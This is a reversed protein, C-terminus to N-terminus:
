KKYNKLYWDYARILGEDLSTKPRWGLKRIIQSNLLKRPTGDPFKPNFKIKTNPNVIKQIRQVFFKVSHEIGTGVNIFSTKKIIKKLAKDKKLLKKLIFCIADALDYVYMMERKAKGTGWVEVTKKKNINTKHFKKILAPIFHSNIAHFNDNPGYLNTPMLAVYNTKFQRNYYELSKLGVIKALAYPENTLELKGSLLYEEKMPQKAFKPYICSSGLLIVSKINNEFCSNVLNMQIKINEFLFETPYTYNALIGGVRGACNIVVDPKQRKIFQKVKSADTLDLQLRTATIINNFNNRKLFDFLASGVLGKHGAIFIKIKKM